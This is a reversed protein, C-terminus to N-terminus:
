ASVESRQAQRLLSVIEDPLRREAAKPAVWAAKTVPEPADWDVVVKGTRLYESRMHKLTRIARSLPYAKNRDTENQWGPPRMIGEVADDNLWLGLFGRVSHRGTTLIRSYGAICCATGCPHDTKHVYKMNFDAEPVGELHSILRDLNQINLSM